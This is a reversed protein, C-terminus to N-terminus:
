NALMALTAREVLHRIKTNPTIAIAAATSSNLASFIARLVSRALSKTAM